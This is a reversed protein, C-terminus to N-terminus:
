RDNLAKLRDFDPEGIMTAEGNKIDYEAYKIPPQGDDVDLREAYITVRMPKIEEFSLEIEAGDQPDSVTSGAIIVNEPKGLPDSLYIGETDYVEATFRYDGILGGEPMPVKLTVWPNNINGKSVYYCIMGDRYESAYILGADYESREGAIRKYLFGAEGIIKEAESDNKGLLEESIQEPTKIYKESIIRVSDEIDLSTTFSGPTSFYLVKLGANEYELNSMEDAGIDPLGEVERNVYARIGEEFSDCVMYIEGVPVGPCYGPELIEYEVDSAELIELAEDKDLRLISGAVSNLKDLYKALDDSTLYEGSNKDYYANKDKDFEINVRSKKWVGESTLEEPECWILTDSFEGLNKPNATKAILGFVSTDDTKYRSM